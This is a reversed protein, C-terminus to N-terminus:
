YAKLIKESELQVDQFEKKLDEIRKVEAKQYDSSLSDTSYEKMWLMMKDTASELKIKLASLETRTKVIDVSPQKKQVAALDGLLSDILLTHKDFVAIQPMIEDHVAIAQTSLVQPDNKQDKIQQCASTMLVIALSSWVFKKMITTNFNFSLIEM